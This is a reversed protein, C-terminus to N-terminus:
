GGPAVGEEANWVVWEDVMAARTGDEDTGDAM